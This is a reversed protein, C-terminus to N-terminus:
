KASAKQKSTESVAPVDFEPLLTITRSLTKGRQFNLGEITKEIFNPKSITMSASGEPVRSITCSGKATTKGTLQSGDASTIVITANEVFADNEDKVTVRAKTHISVRIVKASNVMGEYFDPHSTRWQKGMKLLQTRMIKNAEGTLTTLNKTLGKRITRVDGTSAAVGKYDEISQELTDIVLQSIGFPEIAALPLGSAKQLVLNCKGIATADKARMIDSLEIQMQSYLNQDDNVSAFSQLCSATSSAVNAMATKVQKRTRTVGKNDEEQQSDTAYIAQIKLDMATMGNSYSLLGQWIPKNAPLNCFSQFRNFADLEEKLTRKM